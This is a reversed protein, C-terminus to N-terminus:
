GGQHLVLYLALVALFAVVLAVTSMRPVGRRPPPPSPRLWVNEVAPDNRSRVYPPADPTEGGASGISVDDGADSSGEGPAM